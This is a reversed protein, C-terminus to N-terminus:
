FNVGNVHLWEGIMAKEADGDRDQCADWSHRLGLRRWRWRLLLDGGCSPM